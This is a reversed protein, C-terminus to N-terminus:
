IDMINYYKALYNPVAMKFKATTASFSGRLLGHLGM